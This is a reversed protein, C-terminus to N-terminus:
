IYKYIHIYIHACLRNRFSPKTLLQRFAGVPDGPLICEMATVLAKDAADGIERLRSGGPKLAALGGTRLEFPGVVGYIEMSWAELKEIRAMAVRLEEQLEEELQERTRRESAFAKQAAWLTLVNRAGYSERRLMQLQDTASNLQETQDNAYWTADDLKQELEQRLERQRTLDDQLLETEARHLVESWTSHHLTTPTAAHALVPPVSTATPTSATTSPITFPIAGVCTPLVDM